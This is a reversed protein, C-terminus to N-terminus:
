AARTATLEGALIKAVDEPRVRRRGSPHTIAPLRGERIWRRVTGSSVDLKVAAETITLNTQDSTM